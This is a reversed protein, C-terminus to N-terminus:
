KSQSLFLPLSNSNSARTEYNRHLFKSGILVRNCFLVLFIYNQKSNDPYCIEKLDNHTNIKRCEKPPYFQMIRYILANKEKVHLIIETSWYKKNQRGLLKQCHITNTLVSGHYRYILLLGLLKLKILIIFKIM